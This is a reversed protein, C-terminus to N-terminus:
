AIPINPLDVSESIEVTVDNVNVALNLVKVDVSTAGSHEAQFHSVASDTLVCLVPIQTTEGAPIEVANGISLLGLTQNHLSCQADGSISRLTLNYAFTNTFNVTFTVARTANDYQSSVFVPMEFQGTGMTSNLMESIEHPVVLESLNNNYQIVVTAM